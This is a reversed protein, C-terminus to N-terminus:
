EAKHKENIRAEIANAKKLLAKSGSRARNPQRAERKAKEAAEANAKITAQARERRAKRVADWERQPKDSGRYGAPQPAESMEVDVQEDQDAM